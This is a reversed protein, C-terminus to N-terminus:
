KRKLQLRGGWKLSNKNIAKVENRQQNYSKQFVTKGSGSRLINGVAM